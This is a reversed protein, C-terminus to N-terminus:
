FSIGISRCPLNQAHSYLVSGLITCLVQRRETYFAILDAHDNVPDCQASINSWTFLLIVVTHILLNYLRNQYIIAM